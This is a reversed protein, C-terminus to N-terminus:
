KMAEAGLFRLVWFTNQKRMLPSELSVARGIVIVYDSM